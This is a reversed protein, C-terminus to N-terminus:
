LQLTVVVVAMWEGYFKESHFLVLIEECRFEITMQIEKCVVPALNEM